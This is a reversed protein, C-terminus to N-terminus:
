EADEPDSDDRPRPKRRQAGADRYLMFPAQFAAGYCNVSWVRVRGQAGTSLAWRGDRSLAIPAQGKLSRLCQGTKVLWLKLTGTDTASLAHRGDESLCVATVKSRHGEFSRILEGKQM